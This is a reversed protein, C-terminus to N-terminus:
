ITTLDIVTKDYEELKKILDVSTKPLKQYNYKINHNYLPVDSKFSDKEMLVSRSHNYCIKLYIM